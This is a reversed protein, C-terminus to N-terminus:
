LKYLKAGLERFDSRNFTAVEDLKIADASSLIYADAFEVGSERSRGIADAVLDDDSAHMGPLSLM